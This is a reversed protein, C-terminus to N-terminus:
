EWFTVTEHGKYITNLSGQSKMEYGGVGSTSNRRGQTKFGSLLGRYSIMIGSGIGHTKSGLM